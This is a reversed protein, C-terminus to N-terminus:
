REKEPVIEGLRVIGTADDPVTVLFVSKAQDLMEIRWKGPALGTAGFRGQRNTFLTVPPRDPHALETAQGAVLTIPQGDQDLMTGMATVSYDSGVELRYGSRYAPFVKFSGQGIDVGLPANTVDVPITRESYSSLSPMTAAGLAGSNATHGFPTPEVLVNGRGLSKHPKIIAFSDYIPRGVSVAGDALAISTGIRFSSRQNTSSGFDGAFNGYHSFGLEARNAFYSANVAVNSGLDSREADAMVNYSGVGSGHLTQYSMRVRNERTDYESRLSSSRGINITLTLFGSYEKGRSDQNYRFETSLNALPTLRWGTFVRYSQLDPVTNRGKSFRGDIGGYFESSFAHTYGGGVEYKYPNDALFFTVPAFKRSRHEAFLNVSDSQGNGHQILRQFTGQVAFGDGYGKTHSYAVHTGFSGIVTGFVAEAGGMQIRDDAQINAGLTVADSLGHRVFGTVIWDNSYNPGNADLPAKVGAYLGFESLGRALQTQDLFINFQLVETRGTDDLVNLRVDNGGQAFPFDRLNYIGPALQLRRVQQGNVIVEVTSTRELKFTRDGRPRIIQQPNLVSYSRFLSVGAIEPTAQFGRVQPQLDGASFRILHDIDDYVLRSGLRQFDTGIRGPSWIADSEAVIGGLRVAGNLFFIPDAFGSDPGSEALDLSGRVNLYASAKAPQYYSGLKVRDLASVSLERSARKEVPITLLLELTRPDYNLTIGNPQLDAPGILAKGALNNRLTDLIEPATIPTLLQFLRDAPFQLADDAGITLPIDGLYTAGDKLPVTLVIPRGTPNLRVQRAPPAIPATTIQGEAAALGPLIPGGDSASAGNGAFSPTPVILIAIGSGITLSPLIGRTRM